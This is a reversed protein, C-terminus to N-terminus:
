KPDDPPMPLTTEFESAAPPYTPPPDDTLEEITHVIKDIAEHVKEEREASDEVAEKHEQETQTELIEGAM